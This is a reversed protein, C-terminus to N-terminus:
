ENQLEGWLAIEAMVMSGQTSSTGYTTFTSVTKFRIYSITRFPDRIEDTVALEYEQNNAYSEKDEDTITGIERADGYGSPKFVEWKGLLYWNDWSGDGPPDDSGWLEIQRPFSDKYYLEGQRPWLKMRSILAKYGLAITFHQPIPASNSSAYNLGAASSGVSEPGVWLNELRYYVVDGGYPEWTDTPLKANTWLTKDLKTEESPTVFGFVTDSKNNWRDKIVVGFKQEKSALGRRVFNTHDAMTYFTHLSEMKGNNATDAFLMITLAARSPNNSVVLRVGGFTAEMGIETSLVPPTLPTISVKVPASLKKNRGVSYLNVDYTQTDGFGEMTLSDTYLSAETECIEGNREYVAKVGLLNKDKPITYKLVAGGPRPTNGTVTIPLPAPASDDVTQDIRDEEKCSYWVCFTLCMALYLIKKM